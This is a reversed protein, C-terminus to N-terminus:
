QKMRVALVDCKARHLIGNATSGLLLQLGHKGHSGTVILDVDNDRAYNLINSTARGNLTVCTTNTLTKDKVIGKLRLDSANKLQNHIDSASTAVNDIVYSEPEVVHVLSLHSSFTRQFEIAKSVVQTCEKTLDVAVLIHKYM